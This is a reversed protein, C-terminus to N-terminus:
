DLPFGAANPGVVLGLEDRLFARAIEFTAPTAVESPVFVYGRLKTANYSDLWGGVPFVDKLLMAPGRADFVVFNGAETM